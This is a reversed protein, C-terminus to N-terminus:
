PGAVKESSLQIARGEEASRYGAWVVDMTKLTETGSTEHPFDPDRIGELFHRQTAIYGDLYIRRDDPPLYVDIGRCRGNPEDVRLSGNPLLRLTAETGEVVTENLAWEPRFVDAPACWSLDVLGLAGSSFRLSLQAVDDGPHGPGFCGLVASVSSVEGMLYRATDILHPGMEFLILRPMEAFFPQDSFGDPVLARWDRHIIHLRIPRGIVGEDLARKMERYWTRFRWNEHIMLRVGGRDCAAIMAQLEERTETVPKQCLVHVRSRAALETLFPHASPRTCIEVFDLSEAAFLEAADAYSRASPALSSAWELREPILDCIAALEVDPFTQWAALHHRSVFGCGIVAGRLQSANDM